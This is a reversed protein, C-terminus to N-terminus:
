ICYKRCSFNVKYTVRIEVVGFFIKRKPGLWCLYVCSFFCFESYYSLYKQLLKMILIIRYFNKSFCKYQFYVKATTQTMFGTLINNFKFEGSFLVIEEQILLSHHYLLILYEAISLRLLGYREDNFFDSSCGVKWKTYSENFFIDIFISSVSAQWLLIPM